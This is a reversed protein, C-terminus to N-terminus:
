TKAYDPIQSFNGTQLFHPFKIWKLSFEEEDKFNRFIFKREDNCSYVRVINKSHYDPDIFCWNKTLGLTGLEAYAILSGISNNLSYPIGLDACERIKAAANAPNPCLVTYPAKNEKDRPVDIGYWFNKGPEEVAFIKLVGKYKTKM